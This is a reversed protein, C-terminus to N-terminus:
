AFIKKVDFEVQDRMIFYCAKSIKAALAKMALVKMGSCRSLKRNYWRKAEASYRIMFNAAEIYAWALYKNGCKKNNEGKKKKNSSRDANVCRCYSTYDGVYPFRAIEGTELMITLGLVQGIGTVSLLKEYGPKLRCMELASKELQEIEKSLFEITRINADAMMHVHRDGFLRRLEDTELAKIRSGSIAGGTQRSYLSQFSLIQATRQGTFFMRRRLVDRVAREGKPYIYGCRLLGLRYQDAIFFADTNDDAAKLGSYQEMAEPNVLKVNYGAEQLGDVLWYWNFTSEVAVGVLDKKYAELESRVLELDNALRKKYVRRNNEDVIAYVGNDGHLDIGCYLKM